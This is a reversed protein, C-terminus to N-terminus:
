LEIALGGKTSMGILIIGFELFVAGPAKKNV